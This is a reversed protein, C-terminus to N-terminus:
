VELWARELFEVYAQSSRCAMAVTRELRKFLSLEPDGLKAPRDGVEWRRVLNGGRRGHERAIAPHRDNRQTTKWKGRRM